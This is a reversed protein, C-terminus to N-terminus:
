RMSAELGTIAASMRTGKDIYAPAEFETLAPAHTAMAALVAAQAGPRDSPAAAMCLGFAIDIASVGAGDRWATQRLMSAQASPAAPLRGFAAANQAMSTRALMRNEAASLCLGKAAISIPNERALEALAAGAWLSICALV